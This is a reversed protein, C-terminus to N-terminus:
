PASIIIEAASAPMSMEVEAASPLTVTKRFNKGPGDKCGRCDLIEKHACNDCSKGCYTNPRPQFNQSKPVEVERSPDLLRDVDTRFYEALLKLNDIDPTGNDNEWKAVASRSVNLADALQSQSLGTDTRMKQIKQGLTM